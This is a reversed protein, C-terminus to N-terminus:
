TSVATLSPQLTVNDNAVTDELKEESLTLRKQLRNEHFKSKVTLTIVQVAIHPAHYRGCAFNTPKRIGTSSFVFGNV